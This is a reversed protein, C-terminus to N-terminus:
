PPFARKFSQMGYTVLFLDMAFILRAEDSEGTYEVYIKYDLDELFSDALESDISRPINESIRALGDEFNPYRNRTDRIFIQRADYEDLAIQWLLRPEFIYVLTEFGIPVSDVRLINVHLLAKTVLGTVAAQVWINSLIPIVLCSYIGVTDLGYFFFVSFLGYLAGYFYLSKSKKLFSFTMAYKSSLLESLTFVFAVLFALVYHEIGVGAM